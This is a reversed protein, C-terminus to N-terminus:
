RGCSGLSVKSVASNCANSVDALLSTVRHVYEALMQHGPQLHTRSHEAIAQMIRFTITLRVRALAEDDLFNLFRTLQSNAGEKEAKLSDISSEIEDEDADRNNQLHDKVASCMHEFYDDAEIRELASIVKAIPKSETNAKTDAPFEIPVLTATNAQNYFNTGAAKALHKLQKATEDLSLYLWPTLYILKSSTSRLLATKQLVYM